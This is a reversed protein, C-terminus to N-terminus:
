RRMKALFLLAGAGIAATVGRGFGLSIGLITQAFSLLMAGGVGLAISVVYGNRVLGLREALAGVGGGVLLASFLGYFM